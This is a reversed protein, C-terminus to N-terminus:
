AAKPEDTLKDGSYTTEIMEFAEEPSIKFPRTLNDPKYKLVKIM